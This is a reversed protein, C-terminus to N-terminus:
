GSMGGSKVDEESVSGHPVPMTAAGGNREWSDLLKAVSKFSIPKVLYLDFGSTFAENQDRGSALGTLAIIMTTPPTQLPSLSGRFRSELDRIRRASEFGNMIPMSIDMFIIDPPTPPNADILDKYVTVAVAGDEALHIDKYKRKQMFANLLRLNVKNDDVLLVRPSRALPSSLVSMPTPSSPQHPGPTKPLPTSIAAEIMANYSAQSITEAPPFPFGSSQEVSRSSQASMAEVMLPAFEENAMMQGQQVVNIVNADGHLSVQEVAQVVESLEERDREISKPPSITKTLTSTAQSRSELKDLCVRVIRALKYPGFPFSIPEVNEQASVNNHELKWYAGLCVVIIEPGRPDNLINPFEAVLHPLDAQSIVIIDPLNGPTLIDIIKFCYWDKLYRTVSDRTIRLADLKHNPSSLCFYGATHRQAQTKVVRISDDKTREISGSSPPTSTLALSGSVSTRSMMMPFKITVETGVGVTSQIDIEGNLMSVISRVLSLGLGTGPAISSEQSFPTFLKTKMYQPSIGQGTDKISLTIIHIDETEKNGTNSFDSGLKVRIYGQKTYKLANGFVNMVVRRFAGPQTLFTWNRPGVDLIIEVPPSGSDSADQATDEGFRSDAPVDTSDVDALRDKFVQGTAVGEVVEETIAALDVDGYINLAPQLHATSLVNKKKKSREVRNASREFANIKSYDLVMNITDLLTRACSDATDVMSKQFSTLDTDELFECSALIGHLPSRLEHSVSGIFDSKQQDSELTAIRTLEITISHCFALSYLFEANKEFNRFPSSNYALFVSFRSYIPNWFPVFVVQRSSPFHSRLLGIEAKGAVLHRTKPMQYTAHEDSSSSSALVEEEEINFLMGRPYKKILKELSLKSFATNANLNEVPSSDKTIPISCGALIECPSLEDGLKASSAQGVSGAWSKYSVHTTTGNSGRRPKSDDSDEGGSSEESSSKSRSMNHTSTGTDLFTVGSGPDLSLSRCLLDAASKLTGVLESDDHRLSTQRRTSSNTESVVSRTDSKDESAKAKFKEDTAVKHSDQAATRPMSRTSRTGVSSSRSRALRRKRRWVRNDPDVFAALCENMTKVRKMDEKDKMTELYSMCNEAM